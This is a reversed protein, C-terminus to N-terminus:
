RISSCATQPTAYTAGYPKHPSATPIAAELDGKMQVFALWHMQQAPVM